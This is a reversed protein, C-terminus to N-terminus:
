NLYNLIEQLYIKSEKNNYRNKVIDYHIKNNKTDIIKNNQILFRETCNNIFAYIETGYYYNDELIFNDENQEIIEIKSNIIEITKKINMIWGEMGTIRKLQEDNLVVFDLGGSKFLRKVRYLKEKTFYHIFSEEITYVTNNM